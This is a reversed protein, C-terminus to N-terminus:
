KLYTEINTIVACMEARTIQNSPNFVRQQEVISGKMINSTYLMTVFSDDVDAYPSLTAEDPLELLKAILAAIELRTVPANLDVPGSLAGKSIAHDIYGSAWHASTPELNRYGTTKVILAISEGWTISNKPRFTQNSYGSIINRMNLEVLYDYFWDTHKVDYFFIGNLAGDDRVRGTGSISGTANLIADKYILIMGNNVISKTINVTAGSKIFLESGTPITFSSFNLKGEIYVTGASKGNGNASLIGKTLTIREAGTVAGTVNLIGGDWVKVSSGTPVTLQDIEVQSTISANGKLVGNNIFVGGQQVTSDYISKINFFNGEELFIDRYGGIFTAGRAVTSGNQIRIGAGSGGQYTGGQLVLTSHNGSCEVGMWGGSLTGPGVITFNSNKLSLTIGSNNGHSDVYAYKIQFGDLYLTHNGTEVAIGIDENYATDRTIQINSTLHIQSSTTSALANKLETLTKVYKTDAYGMTMSTFFVLAIFVMLTKSLLTMKIAWNQM